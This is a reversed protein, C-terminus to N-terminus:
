GGDGGDLSPGSDLKAEIAAVLEADDGALSIARRWQVRAEMRRGVMWYADGLHDNIVPDASRYEVALELQEVAEDYRRLRYFAWGLSDVIYGDRPRQEVAREIMDLAEELRSGMDVWSYGLYNLVFPHEPQLELARLLDAEARPWEGSRELAIGRVYYLRWDAPMAEDRRLFARDYAAVAERYREAVRLVDGLVVLADSREDREDIMARLLAIAAETDGMDDLNVAIGLRATWALPSSAEVRRYAGIAAAHRRERELIDGVALHVSPDDPVLHAALRAYALRIDPDLSDDFSWGALLAEAAGEVPEDIHAGPAAPGDRRALARERWLSDPSGALLEEYVARAELPRGQRELFDGYALAARDLALAARFATDAAEADGALAEILGAHYARVPDLDDGRDYAGLVALAREHSGRGVEIWSEILPVLADGFGSRAFAGLADLAAEWDGRALADATLTLSSFQEEPGQEVLERALPVAEAVRGSSVLAFHAQRLAQGNAPDRDLAALLYDAAAAMDRQALAHQAALFAGAATMAAPPGGPGSPAAPATEVQALLPGSGAADAVASSPSAAIFLMGTMTLPALVARRGTNRPSM